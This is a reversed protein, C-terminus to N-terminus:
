WSELNLFGANIETNQDKADSKLGILTKLDRSKRPSNLWSKQQLLGRSSALHV